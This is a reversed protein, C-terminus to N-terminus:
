THPVVAGVPHTTHSPCDILVYVYRRSCATIEFLKPPVPYEDPTVSWGDAVVVNMTGSMLALTGTPYLVSEVMSIEGDSEVLSEM